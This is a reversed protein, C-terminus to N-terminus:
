VKELSTMCLRQRLPSSHFIIREAMRICPGQLFDSVAPISISRIPCNVMHTISQIWMNSINTLLEAYPILEADLDNIDFIFELYGIGNTFIDHSILPMGYISDERNKLPHIEKRIDSINLLPVKEMDEAPSPTEQYLKLEKTDAVVQELEKKTLSAKYDALKQKEAADNEKDLGKKPKMVFIM